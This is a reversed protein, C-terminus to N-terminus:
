NTSSSTPFYSVQGLESTKIRNLARRNEHLRHARDLDIRLEDIMVPDAERQALALFRQAAM